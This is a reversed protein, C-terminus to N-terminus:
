AGLFSVNGSVNFIPYFTITGGDGDDRTYTGCQTYEFNSSMFTTSCGGVFGDDRTEDDPTSSTYCGASNFTATDANNPEEDPGMSPDTADEYWEFTTYSFNCTTIKTVGGDCTVVVEIGNVWTERRLLSSGDVEYAVRIGLTGTRDYPDVFTEGLELYFVYSGPGTTGTCSSDFFTSIHYGIPISGLSYSNNLNRWLWYVTFGPTSDTDDCNLFGNVSVNCVTPITEPDEGVDVVMPDCDDLGSCSGEEPENPITPIAGELNVPPVSLNDFGIGWASLTDYTSGFAFNWGNRAPVATYFEVGEQGIINGDVLPKTIFSVFVAYRTQSSIYGSWVVVTARKEEDWAILIPTFQSDDSLIFSVSDGSDGVALEIGGKIALLQPSTTFVGWDDDVVSGNALMRAASPIGLGGVLGGYEVTHIVGDIVPGNTMRGPGGYIFGSVGSTWGSPVTRSFITTLDGGDLDTSWGKVHDVGSTTWASVGYLRDTSFSYGVWAGIAIGDNIAPPDPMTPLTSNIIAQGDVTSIIEDAPIDGELCQDLKIENVGGGTAAYVINRRPNWGIIRGPFQHTPQGLPYSFKSIGGGIDVVEGPDDWCCGEDWTPDLFNVLRVAPWDGYAIVGKCGCCCQPALALSGAGM